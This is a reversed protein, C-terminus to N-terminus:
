SQKDDIFEKIDGTDCKLAGGIRLLVDINVNGSRGLKAISTGSINAM